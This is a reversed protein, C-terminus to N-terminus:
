ARSRSQRVHVLTDLERQVVANETAEAQSARGVGAPENEDKM